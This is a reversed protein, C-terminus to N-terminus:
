YVDDSTLNQIIERRLLVGAHNQFSWDLPEEERDTSSGSMVM